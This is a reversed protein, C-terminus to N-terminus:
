YGIFNEPAPNRKTFSFFHKTYGVFLSFDNRKFVMSNAKYKLLDNSFGFKWTSNHFPIQISYTQSFAQKNHFSSFHVFQGSANLLFMEYYSVGQEPVMMCGMVPTEFTGELRLNRWKTPIDYIVVASANLNTSLDMNFPNNVNRLNMKLGLDVDWIGGTLIQLNKVPRFHYHVGGGFNGGGYMMSATKAPNSTTGAQIKWKITYSLNEQYPSLLSRMGWNIKVGFGQYPLPSLYNDILSLSSLNFTTAATKLAYKPTVSLNDVQQAKTMFFLCFSCCILLFIKKM